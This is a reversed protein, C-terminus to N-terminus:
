SAPMKRLGCRKCETCSPRPRTSVANSSVAWVSSMATMVTGLGDLGARVQDTPWQNWDGLAYGVLWVLQPSASM